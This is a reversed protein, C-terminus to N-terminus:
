KVGEANLIAAMEEAQARTHVYAPCKDVMCPGQDSNADWGLDANFWVSLYRDEAWGGADPDAQLAAAIIKNSRAMLPAAKEAAERSPFCNGTARTDEGAHGAPAIKGTAGVWWHNFEGRYLGKVPEPAEIIKRLEATENELSKLRALADQKNM